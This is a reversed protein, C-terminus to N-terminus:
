KSFQSIQIKLKQQQESVIPSPMNIAKSTINEVM